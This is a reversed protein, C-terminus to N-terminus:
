GRCELPAITGNVLQYGVKCLCMLDDTTNWEGNSLCVSSLKVKNISNVDTCKGIEEVLDSDNAPSVTRPFTALTIGTEPCYRYSIVVKTLSICVGEDLFALYIGKAKTIVSGRFVDKVTRNPPPLTKPKIVMEKKFVGKTPDPVPDKTDAHYSYLTLYTKCYRSIGTLPCNLLSYHVEIDLRKANRVDIFDTQLWNNPKRTIM